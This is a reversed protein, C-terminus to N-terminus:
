VVVLWDHFGFMAGVMLEFNWNIIIIFYECGTICKQESTVARM